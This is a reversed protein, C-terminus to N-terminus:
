TALAEKTHLAIMREEDTPLVWVPSGRDRRASIRGRAQGTSPRMWSWASGAAAPRSTPARDCRDNEGIGGTFVIADLVAWRRRWVLRIERVIRYVFLAIAEAATPRRPSGCPACTRRSGSCAWCGRSAISCTRSRRPTWAASRCSTSCCAPTSALRHSHGDDLGDVATFGMTSAVSRGMAARCVPQRRQRSPRHDAACRAIEPASRAAPAGRHLRLVPRPLRLPARRSGSLERPLAFAQALTRSAHSPVGYRLLRGASYHPAAAAIAEIPALNHPQHLPALPVLQALKASSGPMSARRRPSSWAAMSWAIASRWCRGDPWCSAVWRSSRPPPPQSPRPRRRALDKGGRQRRRRRRGQLHPESDAAARGTRPVAAAGDRGARLARVQHELLRCQPRRHLGAQDHAGDPSSTPAAMSTSRAAPSATPSDAHCPLRLRLGCGHHRGARGAAGQQGGREAAARFGQPRVRAPRPAPRALDAHVRIRSRGLSTPSIAAPRRRARGEGTGDVNYNPVVRNAGYSSMAFMTGGEDDAARGLRAMRVFSHRSVDMAKAFGEAPAISCAAACTRSRRSPSRISSSTSGCGLARPDGRVSAELQAPVRRREAPSHDARRAGGRAARRPPPPGQREALHDALEAGPRASPRPVTLFSRVARQRDRSSWTAKHGKASRGFPTRTM